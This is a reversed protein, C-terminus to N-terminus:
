IKHEKEIEKLIKYHDTFYEDQISKMYEILNEAMFDVNKTNDKIVIQYVISLFSYKPRYKRNKNKRFPFTKSIYAGMEGKIPHSYLNLENTYIGSNRYMINKVKAWLRKKGEATQRDASEWVIKIERIKDLSQSRIRHRALTNFDSSLMMTKMHSVSAQARSYMIEDELKELRHEIPKSIADKQLNVIWEGAYPSFFVVLVALVGAFKYRQFFSALQELKSMDKDTERM